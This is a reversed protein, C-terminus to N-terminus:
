GYVPVPQCHCNDHCEFPGTLAPNTRSYEAIQQCFACAGASTARVIGTARPDTATATRILDRGGNLAHRTGASASTFSATESAATLNRGAAMASKLSIPGQVLLSTRLAAADLAPVATTPLAEGVEVLRLQALYAGALASSTRHAQAVIPEAATLWGPASADLDTPDLLSWVMVLRAVTQASLRAQATRHADTLRRGAASTM